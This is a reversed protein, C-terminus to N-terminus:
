DESICEYKKIKAEHYISSALEEAIEYTSKFGELQYTINLHRYDKLAERMRLYHIYREYDEKEWECCASLFELVPICEEDTLTIMRECLVDELFKAKAYSVPASSFLSPYKDAFSSIRKRNELRKIAFFNELYSFGLLLHLPMDMIESVSTGLLNADNLDSFRSSIYSLCSEELVKKANNILEDIMVKEKKDWIVM